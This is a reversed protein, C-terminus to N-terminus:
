KPMEQRLKFYRTAWLNEGNIVDEGGYTQFFLPKLSDKLFVPVGASDAAEVIERVWEVKPAIYPKTQAGLILWSVSGFPRPHINQGTSQHRTPGAPQVDDTGSQSPPQGEGQREQPQDHSGTSDARSPSVVGAQPGARPLSDREGDNPSTPIQGHRERSEQAQLLGRPQRGEVQGIETGQGELHAGSCRDGDGGGHGNLPCDERQRDSEYDTTYGISENIDIRELLPEFSIYKVKAEIGRLNDLANYMELPGTASVGVYCNEPFPSWKALEQPQKTLFYYRNQGHLRCLNLVKRTWDEPVWPGFLEGMSCVFIGKPTGQWPHYLRDEWLRPYFPMLKAFNSPTHTLGDGDEYPPILNNNGLMRGKLRGNALGRAWCYSCDKLCGTIPNWTYGQTGDPNKVWEIKTKSM